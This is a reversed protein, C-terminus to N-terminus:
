FGGDNDTAESATDNNGKDDKRVGSPEGTNSGQMFKFLPPSRQKPTM